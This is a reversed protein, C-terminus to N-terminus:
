SVRSVEGPAAVAAPDEGGLYAAVVAPDAQVEAPTGIKIVLGFDLVVIRDSIATVLPIDHEVVVVAIGSQEAVRRIVRGLEVREGSDLGAAPEDLFLVAPEAAVARAIGVLRAAGHSLSEPLEDLLGELAFDAVVANMAATAQPQGPRVLDTVYRTWHKPDAAVLLNERVTLDDFLEVAQFTRVLGLRARRHPALGGLDQGDFVVRGTAHPAYGTLAEICTTKGAGNPGIFGVLMGEDVQFSVDDVAVVGGFM